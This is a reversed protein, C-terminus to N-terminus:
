PCGARLQEDETLAACITIIHAGNYSHVVAPPFRDKTRHAALATTAHPRTPPAAPIPHSRASTRSPADPESRPEVQPTKRPPAPARPISATVDEAVARAPEPPEPATRAIEVAPPHATHSAPLSGYAAWVLPTMVGVTMGTVFLYRHLM